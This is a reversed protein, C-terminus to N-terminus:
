RWDRAYGWTLKTLLEVTLGTSTLCNEDTMPRAPPHALGDVEWGMEWRREHVETVNQQLRSLIKHDEM